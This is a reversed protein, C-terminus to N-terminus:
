VRVEKKLRCCGADVKPSVKVQYGHLHNWCSIDSSSDYPVRDDIYSLLENENDWAGMGKLEVVAIDLGEDERLDIYWNGKGTFLASIQNDIVTYFPTDTHERIFVLDLAFESPM